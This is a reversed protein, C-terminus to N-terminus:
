GVQICGLRAHILPQFEKKAKTPFMEAECTYVTLTKKRQELQSCRKECTYVTSIKKEPKTPFM